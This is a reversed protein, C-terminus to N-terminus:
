RLLVLEPNADIGNWVIANQQYKTGLAKATERSVGLVLFSPEAPWKNSPHQGVGSIFALSRFKLESALAAQRQSNAEEDFPQSFPNCTTIFTSSEVDCGKHLAMLEASAAGVRLMFPPNGLVRFDTELYAQVTSTDIISDSIM